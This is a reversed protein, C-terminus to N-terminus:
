LKNFSYLHFTLFRTVILSKIEKINRFCSPKVKRPLKILPIMKDTIIQLNSYIDSIIEKNDYNRHGINM